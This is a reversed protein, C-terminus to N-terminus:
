IGRQMQILANEAAEADMTIEHSRGFYYRVIKAGRKQLIEVRKKAKPKHIDSTLNLSAMVM